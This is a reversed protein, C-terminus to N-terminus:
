RYRRHGRLLFYVADNEFVSADVESDVALGQGTGESFLQMAVLMVAESVEAPAVLGRGFVGTIEAFDYAGRLVLRDYPGVGRPSHRRLMIDRLPVDMPDEWRLWARVGGYSLLGPDSIDFVATAKITDWLEFIRVESDPYEWRYGCYNEVAGRAAALADQLQADRDTQTIGLRGKIDDLSPYAM